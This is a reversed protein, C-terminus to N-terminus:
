GYRSRLNVQAVQYLVLIHFELKTIKVLLGILGTKGPLRAFGAVYGM